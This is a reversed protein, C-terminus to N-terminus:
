ERWTEAIPPDVNDHKWPQNLVRRTWDPMKLKAPSEAMHSRECARACWKNMAHPGAPKSHGGEYTRPKAPADDLEDDGLYAVDDPDSGLSTKPRGSIGWAKACKGDCALVMAHGMWRIQKTHM